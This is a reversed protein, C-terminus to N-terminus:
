SNTFGLSCSDSMPGAHLQAFHIRRGLCIVGSVNGKRHSTVLHPPLYSDQLKLSDMPPLIDSMTSSTPSMIPSYRSVDELTVPSYLSRTDGPDLLLDTKLSILNSPPEILTPTDRSPKLRGHLWYTKM